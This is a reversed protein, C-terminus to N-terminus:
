RKKLLDAISGFGSDGDKAIEKRIFDAFEEQEPLRYQKERDPILIDGEKLAYYMLALAYWAATQAEHLFIIEGGKERFRDMMENTAKWQPPPPIECRSDRIYFVRCEPNQELFELGRKFAAIVSLSSRETDIIFVAPFEAAVEAKKEDEAHLTCIFDIYRDDPSSLSSVRIGPEPPINELFLLLARHLRNRDPPYPRFDERISRCQAHFIERLKQLSDPQASLPQDPYLIEQLLQNATMIVQRPSFLRKQFIQRLEEKEFPFFDSHNEGLVAQLRTEVIQMSQEPSCGKLVFHNTQLRSIVQQNLQHTFKEEWQAGRVFVIPLMAKAHDVLFEIMTELSRIKQDTDYNELRDFCILLPKGFRALLLGLSELISRAHEEQMPGSGQSGEPIGLIAADEADIGEGRLWESVAARKEPCPYQLLVRLFIKPIHPFCSQVFDLADAAQPLVNDQGRDPSDSGPIHQKGRKGPEPSDTKLLLDLVIRFIRGLDQFFTRSISKKKRLTQRLNEHLDGWLDDNNQKLAASLPAPPSAKKGPISGSRNEAEKFIRELILDMQGTDAGPRLPYSLNVIIERLLYRYTQGPNELPHLYAFSFHDEDARLLRGILHTKGSGTEGFVLGACPLAPRGSKQRILRSLGQFAAENVSLIDPFSHERPNGVSSSVFPNHDRLVALKEENNKMM